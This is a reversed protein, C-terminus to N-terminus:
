GYFIGGYYGSRSQVKKAKRIVEDALRKHDTRIKDVEKARQFKLQKITIGLHDAETQDNRLHLAKNNKKRASARAQNLTTRNKRSMGQYSRLDGVIQLKYVENRSTKPM